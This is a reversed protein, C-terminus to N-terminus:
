YNTKQLEETLQENQKIENNVGSGQPKKILFNIFWLFFVEMMNQTKILVLHNIQLQEDYQIKLIEMLWMINFVAKELENKYNCKTDGTKKFKQIRQKNKTSPGSVSYTFGLQKLHLEPMLKDGALLFRNVIDNM